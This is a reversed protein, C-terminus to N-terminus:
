LLTGPPDVFDFLRWEGEDVKQTAPYLQSNRWLLSMGAMVLAGEPIVTCESPHQSLRKFLANEIYADAPPGDDKFRDKAGMERWHM